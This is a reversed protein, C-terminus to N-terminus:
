SDWMEANYDSDSGLIFSPFIYLTGCFEPNRLSFKINYKDRGSYIGSYVSSLTFEKEKKREKKGSERWEKKIENKCM